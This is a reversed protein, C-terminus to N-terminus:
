RRARASGRRPSQSRRIPASAPMGTELIWIFLATAVIDAITRRHRDRIREAIEHLEAQALTPRGARTPDTVTALRLQARRQEPTLDNM